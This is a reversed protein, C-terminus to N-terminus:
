NGTTIDSLSKDFHEVDPSFFGQWLGTYDRARIDDAQLVLVLRKEWVMSQWVDANLDRWRWIADVDNAQENKCVEADLEGWRAENCRYASNWGRM